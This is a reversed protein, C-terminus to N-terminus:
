TTRPVSEHSQLGMSQGQSLDWRRQWKWLLIMLGNNVKVDSYHNQFASSMEIGEGLAWEPFWIM